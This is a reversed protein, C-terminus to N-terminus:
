ISIDCRKEQRLLKKILEKIGLEDESVIIVKNNEFKFIGKQMPHLLPGIVTKDDLANARSTTAGQRRAPQQPTM